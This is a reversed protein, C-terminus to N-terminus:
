FSIKLIKRRGRQLPCREIIPVIKLKRYHGSYFPKVTNRFKHKSFDAKIQFLRKVYNEPCNNIFVEGPDTIFIEQPVKPKRQSPKLQIYDKNDLFVFEGTARTKAQIKVSKLPLYTFYQFSFEM